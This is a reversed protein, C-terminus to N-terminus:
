RIANNTRQAIYQKHRLRKQIEACYPCYIYNGDTRWGKYLLLDPIFDESKGCMLCAIHIFSSGNACANVVQLAIRLLPFVISRSRFDLDLISKAIIVSKDDASHFACILRPRKPCNDLNCENFRSPMIKCANETETVPDYTYRHECCAAEGFIVSEPFVSVQPDGCFTADNFQIKM